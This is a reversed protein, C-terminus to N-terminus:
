AITNRLIGLLDIELELIDGSQLWREKKDGHELLCGTGVTGSGIVDGPVLWVNASAREIMRPYTFHIDKFNGRSIEKGNLRATMNLDFLEKGEIKRPALEDPTILYPGFSTAFDKGKAPGLGVAMEPAQLDRASWDNMIFYGAIYQPAEDAPIDRGARGIVCAMELEFDMAQCGRPIPIYDEPSYIARHNTFYFVPIKYWEPQVDLGRNARATKVHQEFAYFDRVSPPMEIPARLQVEELPQSALNAAPLEPAIEALATRVEQDLNVFDLVTQPLTDFTLSHHHRAWDCFHQLSYVQNELLIGGRGIARRQTKQEAHANYENKDPLYSVLKM